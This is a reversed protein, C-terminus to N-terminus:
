WIDPRALLARQPYLSGTARQVQLALYGIIDFVGGKHTSGQDTALCGWWQVLLQASGIHRRALMGFNFNIIGPAYVLLGPGRAKESLGLIGATGALARSGWCHSCSSHDPHDRSGRELLAARRGQPQTEGDASESEAWICFVLVGEVWM